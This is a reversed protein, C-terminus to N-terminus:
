GPRPADAITAKDLASILLADVTAVSTEDKLRSMVLDATVQGRAGYFWQPLRDAEETGGYSALITIVEVTNDNVLKLNKEIAGAGAQNGLYRSLLPVREPHDYRERAIDLPTRGLRDAIGLSAGKELMRKTSRYDGIQVAMALATMELPGGIDDLHNQADFRELLQSIIIDTMSQETASFGSEIVHFLAYQVASFLGRPSAAVIFGDSQNQVPLKLLFKIRHLSNRTKMAILDGLLTTSKQSVRHVVAGREFLYRAVTLNGCYVATEFATASETPSWDPHLGRALISRVFSVDDSEKAARALPTDRNRSLVTTSAGAELLAEVMAHDRHNIAMFLATDGAFTTDINAAFGHQIGSLMVDSPCQHFAVAFIAAMKSDGMELVAETPAGHRVLVAITERMKEEFATGHCVLRPWRSIARLAGWLPRALVPHGQVMPTAVLLADRASPKELIRSLIESFCLMSAMQLANAQVAEGEKCEARALPDAGIELLADVAALNNAAVAWQLPTWKLSPSTADPRITHSHLFENIDFAVSQANPDGGNAQLMRAITHLSDTSFRSLWHLPTIGVSDVLSSDSGSELLTKAISVRGLRCAVMLPTEGQESIRLSLIEPHALICSRASERQDRVISVLITQPPTLSLIEDEEQSRGASLMQAGFGAAELEKNKVQENITVWSAPSTDKLKQLAIVNGAAASVTLWEVWEGISVSDGPPGRCDLANIFFNQAEEHGLKASDLLYVKAIELNYDVGIGNIHAVAMTFAGASKIRRDQTSEVVSCLSAIADAQIRVPMKQYVGSTERLDPIFDLYRWFNFASDVYEAPNGTAEGNHSVLKPEPALGSLDVLFSFLHNMSLQIMDGPDEPTGFVEFLQRMTRKQVLDHFSSGLPIDESASTSKHIWLLMQVIKACSDRLLKAQDRTTQVTGLDPPLNAVVEVSIKLCMASFADASNPPDLNANIDYAALRHMSDVAKQIRTSTNSEEADDGDETYGLAIRLMKLLILIRDVSTFRDAPDSQLCYFWIKCILMLPLGENQRSMLVRIPILTSMMNSKKMKQLNEELGEAPLTDYFYSGSEFITLLTLGYCYIDLQKLFAQQLNGEYSEPACFLQSHGVLHKDDTSLSFGFDSLKIVFNRTPHKCVLLNSPKIDGHVIGSDHLAKLGTATETAIRIRDSLSSGFGHEQFAKLSGYDAYELVLAPLIRPWGTSAEGTDHYM